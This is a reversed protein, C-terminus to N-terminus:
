MCRWLKTLLSSCVLISMHVEPANRCRARCIRTSAVVLLFRALYDQASVQRIFDIIGIVLEHKKKDVGVLLSYDM